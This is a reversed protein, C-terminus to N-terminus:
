LWAGKLATRLEDLWTLIQPPKTPIDIFRAHMDQLGSRGVLKKENIVWLHGACALAHATEIVAKASQGVTGTIDGREARMQAHVLSFEAHQLWCPLGTQSLKEPYEGATPLSGHVIRNLALEAMLIYTPAGALYGLLADIEYVGQRAEAAWHLVVDLDRLLVDVKMGGLSLWAGGNMIRGWSGPPHLEGYSALPALDINGRYYVGLDWDSKTDATGAARSGGIAVAGVGRTRALVACLEAVPGPLGNMM